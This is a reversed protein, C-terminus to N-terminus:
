PSKRKIPLYIDAKWESETIKMNPNNHFHEIPLGAIEYGNREAYHILEYWARDSTIYNGYYEAKLVPLKKFQQYKFVDVVPITDM